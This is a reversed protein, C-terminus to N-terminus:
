IASVESDAMFFKLHDCEADRPDIWNLLSGYM